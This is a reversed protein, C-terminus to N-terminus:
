PEIFRREPVDFYLTKDKASRLILRLGEAGVVKLPGVNAPADYRDSKPPNAGDGLQYVQVVIVGPEVEGQRSLSGAWVFTRQKGENDDLYWANLIRYLSPPFPPQVEVIAGLGAVQAERIPAYATAEPTRETESVDLPKIGKVGVESTPFAQATAYIALKTANRAADYASIIRTPQPQDRVSRIWLPIVIAVIVFGFVALIGWLLLSKWGSLSHQGM